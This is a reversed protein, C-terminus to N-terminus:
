AKSVFAGSNSSFSPCALARRCTEPERPKSGTLQHESLAFCSTAFVVWDRTLTHRESPPGLQM